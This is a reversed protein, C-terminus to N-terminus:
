QHFTIFIPYEGMLNTVGVKLGGGDLPLLIDSL